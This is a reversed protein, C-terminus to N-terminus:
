FWVVGGRICANTFTFINYFIANQGLGTAFPLVKGIQLIILCKHEFKLKFKGLEQWTFQKIKIFKINYNILDFLNIKNFMQLDYILWSYGKIM